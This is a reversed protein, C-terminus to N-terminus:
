TDYTKLWPWQQPPLGAEKPNDNVYQVAHEIENIDFLFVKWGHECWPTPLRDKREKFQALPHLKAKRLERSAARKLYGVIDEAYMGQRAAVVHVHDPMIAASYFVLRLKKSIDGFARGVVEIQDASFRVAPYKLESRMEALQAADAATLTTDERLRAPPGFRQLRSAFVYSSMSGRPDNPLWFGYAGFIIHYAIVPRSM